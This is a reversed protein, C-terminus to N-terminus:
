PVPNEFLGIDPPLITFLFFLLIIIVFATISLLMYNNSNLIISDTCHIQTYYFLAYLIIAAIFYIAINIWDINTGIIGTITYFLVVISVMGAIISIFFGNIYLPTANVPRKILYLGILMCLLAPFFLLKLHEWTSENIPTFLGVIMNKNSFDYAFHLLVGLISTIIFAAITFTKVSKNYNM